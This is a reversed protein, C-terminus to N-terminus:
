FPIKFPKTVKKMLYNNLVDKWTCLYMGVDDNKTIEYYPQVTIQKALERSITM